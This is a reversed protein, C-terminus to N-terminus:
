LFIQIQLITDVIKQINNKYLNFNSVVLKCRDFFHKTEECHRFYMCGNYANLMYNEYWM